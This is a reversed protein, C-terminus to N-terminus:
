MNITIAVKCTIEVDAVVSKDYPLNGTGLSNCFIPRVYSLLISSFSHLVHRSGYFVSGIFHRNSKSSLSIKNHHYQLFTFGVHLLAPHVNFRNM